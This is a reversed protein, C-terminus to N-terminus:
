RVPPFPSSNAPPFPSGSQAPAADAPPASARPARPPPAARKAPAATSGSKTSKRAGKKTVPPATPELAAFVPNPILTPTGADLQYQVPLAQSQHNPLTFTVTFDQSPAVTLSCPTRCSGGISTRAEAGPPDSEVNLAVEPPASSFLSLGPLSGSCGALALAPALAMAVTRFRSMGDLGM